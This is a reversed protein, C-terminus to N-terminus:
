PRPESFPPQPEDAVPVDADDSAPAPETANAGNRGLTEDPAVKAVAVVRDGEVLRILRVGQTARGIQRLASLDTRLMMGGATIMMLEDDDNVACIAM